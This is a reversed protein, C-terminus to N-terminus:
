AGAAWKMGALAINPPIQHGGDFQRFTVDYGQKELVPVIVRSCRDIPLVPDATGHSIFFAPKGQARGGVFFGPSYALVRRFLDGNLLGLSIAYTAGDSFGGVSVRAPDVSVTDFVRDLARNLFDVDPGFGGRIADWTSERSDPALVVIGAEDAFSVLRRLIGSGSGGAGHLLVLLPLPAGPVKPPLHLIADRDAGLGLARDGTATTKAQPRPRATLKGDNRQLPVSGQCASGLAFSVVAGGTISGFQRRTVRRGAAPPTM